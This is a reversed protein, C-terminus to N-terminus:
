KLRERWQNRLISKNISKEPPHNDVIEVGVLSAIMAEEEVGCEGKFIDIKDAVFGTHYDGNIFDEDSMIWNGFELTNKVGVLQYEKTARKMREIAENRDKGHVILKSLLPDYDVPVDMGEEYGDDIRVGIGKPVKYIELKGTDPLFSNLPDEAYVRLEIAHGRIKLERQSFSLRDGEAIKIQMKVLDIGTIYETVPHEVQLRTNMELFFFNRDQDLIFEVTGANTYKSKNVLRLAAEGMDSRLADDLVASPAEEIVKQHRRQISCERDFLHIANGHEDSLVQIEIHRPQEIYKEVFVRGDGFAEKAERIALEIQQDLDDAANQVIRMGKGGGGARAKILLPFGMNEAIKQEEIGFKDEIQFGPVVPVDAMGAVEKAKLKDGMLAIAEHSPGIFICGRACAERAFVHNESLFGYGPHIADVEALEGINIIQDMDLYPEIGRNELAYAEDAKFVHVALRDTESFVAVTSIGLEKAAHIIRVAIEGRNAVLLKRIKKM